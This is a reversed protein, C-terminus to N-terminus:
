GQVARLVGELRKRNVGFDSRGFRLRAHMKLIGDAYQLTTYDPFGITASRTVYTIRGSAISGAVVETRPLAQMYADAAAMVEPDARIVRVAGGIMDADSQAVIEAHWKPGDTAGLRVYAAWAVLSVCIFVVFYVIIKM